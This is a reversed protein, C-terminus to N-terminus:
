TLGVQARTSLHCHRPHYHYYYHAPGVAVRTVHGLRRIVAPPVGGATKGDWASWTLGPILIWCRDGRLHLWYPYELRWPGVQGIAM